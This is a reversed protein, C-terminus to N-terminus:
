FQFYMFPIGTPGAAALLGLFVAVSAGVLFSPLACFAGKAALQWAISTGMIGGGIVVVDYGHTGASSM